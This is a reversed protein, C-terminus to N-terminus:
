KIEENYTLSGRIRKGKVSLNEVSRVSTSMDRMQIHRFYRLRGDWIKYSILAVVLEVMFVGNGTWRRIKM